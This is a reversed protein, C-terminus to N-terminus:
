AHDAHAKGRALLCIHEYADRGEAFDTALCPESGYWKSDIISVLRSLWDYLPTARYRNLHERNTAGPRFPKEEAQELRALAARHFLRVGLIYNGRTGADDAERALEAPDVRRGALDELSHAARQDRRAVILLTWSIHGLLLCLSVILAVTIGIALIPSMGYLWAFADRIAEIVQRWAQWLKTIVDSFDTAADLHYEPRALVERAAQRVAQPDPLPGGTQGLLVAFMILSGPAAM